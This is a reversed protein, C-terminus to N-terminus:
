GLVLEGGAEVSPIGAAATFGLGLQLNGFHLMDLGLARTWIGIMAGGMYLVTPQVEITLLFTLPELWLYSEGEQPMYKCGDGSRINGIDITLFTMFGFTLGQTNAIVFIGISSLEFTPRGLEYISGPTGACSDRTIIINDLSGGLAISPPTPSMNAWLRIKVDGLYKRIFSCFMNNCPTALKMVVIATIGRPILPMGDLVDLDLGM